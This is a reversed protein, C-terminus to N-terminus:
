RPSETARAGVAPGALDEADEFLDAIWAKVFPVRAQRNALRVLEADAAAYTCIMRKGDASLFGRIYRVGYLDLCSRAEKKIARIQELTQPEDFEREVVILRTTM